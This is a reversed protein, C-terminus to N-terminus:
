RAYRAFFLQEEHRQTKTTFDLQKETDRHRQPSFEKKTGRVAARREM